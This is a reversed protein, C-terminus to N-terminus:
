KCGELAAVAEQRTLFVSIGIASEDFALHGADYIIKSIKLEYLHVADAQYVTDGVKCTLGDREKEVLEAIKEPPLGGCVHRYAAFMEMNEAYQELVSLDINHRTLIDRLAQLEELWDALKYHQYACDRGDVGCGDAVQRAHIIAENLEM